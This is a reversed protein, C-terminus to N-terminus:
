SPRDVMPLFTSMSASAALVREQATNEIQQTVMQCLELMTMRGGIPALRQTGTM